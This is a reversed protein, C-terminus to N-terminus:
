YVVYVGACSLRYSYTILDQSPIQRLRQQHAKAAEDKSVPSMETVAASKWWSPRIYAAIHEMKPHTYEPYHKILNELNSMHPPGGCKLAQAIWTQIPHNAATTKMRTVTQSIKSPLRWQPPLLATAYRNIYQRLCLGYEQLKTYTLPKIRLIYQSETPFEIHHKRAQSSTLNESV